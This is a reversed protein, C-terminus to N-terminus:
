SAIKTIEETQLLVYNVLGIILENAQKGNTGVNIVEVIKRVYEIKDICTALKL